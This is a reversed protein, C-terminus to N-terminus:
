LPPIYRNYTKDYSLVYTYCSYMPIADLSMIFLFTSSSVLANYLLISYEFSSYVYIYIYLGLIYTLYTQEPKSLLYM